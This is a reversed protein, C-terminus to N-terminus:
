INITAEHSYREICIDILMDRQSEDDQLDRTKGKQAKEGQVM